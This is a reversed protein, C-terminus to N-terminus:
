AVRPPGTPPDLQNALAVYVDTTTMIGVLQGDRTILASGHHDKAMERLAVALPTHCDTVYTPIRAVDQVEDANEDVGTALILYQKSVIGIPQGDRTVPLHRVGHEEMMQIADPIAASGEITYPFPTMVTLLTPEAM